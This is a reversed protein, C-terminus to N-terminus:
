KFGKIASTHIGTPLKLTWRRRDGMPQAPRHGDLRQAGMVGAGGGVVRAGEEEGQILAVGRGSGGRGRRWRAASAWRPAGRRRGDAAGPAKRGSQV